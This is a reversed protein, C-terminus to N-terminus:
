IEDNEWRNKMQSIDKMRKNLITNEEMAQIDTYDMKCKAHFLVSHLYPFNNHGLYQAYFLNHSLNGFAPFGYFTNKYSGTVMLNAKHALALAHM